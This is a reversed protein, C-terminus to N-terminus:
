KGENAAKEKAAKPGVGMAKLIENTVDASKKSYLAASADLVFDYGNKEAFKAVRARIDEAQAKLLRAELDSLEKQNRMAENRLKGQVDMFRNQVGAMDTEIKKKATQSLMPNRYEDAMKKGEEQIADLEAKLADLDKQYDRETSAILNKNYEYSPHNRVLTMMDATGIKMEASAAAAVAVAGLLMMKKM